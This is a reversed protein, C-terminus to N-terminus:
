MVQDIGIVPVFRCWVGWKLSYIFWVMAQCARHIIGLFAFLSDTATRGAAVVHSKCRGYLPCVSHLIPRYSYLFIFCISIVIYKQDNASEHTLHTKHGSNQFPSIHCTWNHRPSSRYGSIETFSTSSSPVQFIQENTLQLKIHYESNTFHM